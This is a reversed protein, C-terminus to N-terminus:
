SLRKVMRSELSEIKLNQEMATLATLLARADGEQCVSEMAERLAQWVPELRGVLAIGAPTFRVLKKRGDTLSPGVHLFGKKELVATLQSVASHSIGIKDSLQRISQEGSTRLLYFVPFWSADFPIDHKRYVANVDALFSESLRRLRSGLVLFGLSQYFDM